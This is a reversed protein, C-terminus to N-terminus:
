EIEKAKVADPATYGYDAMVAAEPEGAAIRDFAARLWHMTIKGPWRGREWALERELEAIRDNRKVIHGRMEDLVAASHKVLVQKILDLAGEVLFAAQESFSKDTM